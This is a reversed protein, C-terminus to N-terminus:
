EPTRLRGKWYGPRRRGHAVALVQISSSLERYVVIFPFRQLVFKRTGYIYNTWRHPTESITEVATDLEKAFKSAALESREFYWAFAAEYEAAAEPHFLVSKGAM